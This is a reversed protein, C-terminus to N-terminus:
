EQLLQAHFNIGHIAYFNLRLSRPPRNRFNLIRRGGWIFRCDLAEVVPLAIVGRSPVSPTRYLLEMKHM